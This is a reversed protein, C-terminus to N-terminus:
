SHKSSSELSIYFSSSLPLPLMPSAEHRENTERKMTVDVYWEVTTRGQERKAAKM